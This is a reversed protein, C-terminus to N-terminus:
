QCHCSLCSSIYRIDIGLVNVAGIFDLPRCLAVFDFRCNENTHQNYHRPEKPSLANCEAYIGVNSVCASVVPNVFDPENLAHTFWLDRGGVALMHTFWLDLGGM